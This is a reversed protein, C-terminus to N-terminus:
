IVPLERDGGRHRGGDADLGGLGVGLVADLHETADSDGPLM